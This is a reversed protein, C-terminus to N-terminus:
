QLKIYKINLRKSISKNVPVIKNLDEYLKRVQDNDIRESEIETIYAEYEDNTYKNDKGVPLKEQLFKKYIKERTELERKITQIRQYEKIVDQIDDIEVNLPEELAIITKM